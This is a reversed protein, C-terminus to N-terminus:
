GDLADVLAILILLRDGIPRHSLNHAVHREQEAYSTDERAHDEAALM